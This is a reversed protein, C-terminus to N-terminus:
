SKECLESNNGDLIDKLYNKRLVLQAQKLDKQHQNEQIESKLMEEIEQFAETVNKMLVDYSESKLLYRVDKNGMIEYLDDFDRYGTLFIVRCKPWNEKILHFLEIGSMGPMKIDTMVVDFKSQELLEVAIKASKAVYVDIDLGSEYKFLEELTELIDPEDDVILLRGM